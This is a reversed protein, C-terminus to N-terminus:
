GSNDVGLQQWYRGVRDCCQQQQKASLKARSGYDKVFREIGYSQLVQQDDRCMFLHLLNRLCVSSPLARSYFRVDGIDILAFSRDALWLVNALHLSRFFIGRQHLHHLYEPLQTLARQQEPGTLQRCDIGPIKPYSLLYLKREPQYFIKNVRAAPIGLTALRQSNRQFQLAKPFWRSRSWFKTKPYFIRVMEHDQTCYMKPREKSGNVLTAERCM